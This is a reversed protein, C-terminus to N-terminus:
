EEADEQPARKKLSFPPLHTSIHGPKSFVWPLQQLHLEPYHAPFAPYLSKAGYGSRVSPLAPLLAAKFFELERKKARRPLWIKVQHIHIHGRGGSRRAWYLVAHGKHRYADKLQSRQRNEQPGTNTLGVAKQAKAEFIGSHLFYLRGEHLMVRERPFGKRKPHWLWTGEQEGCGQGQGMGWTEKRCHCRSDSAFIYIHWSLIRRKWFLSFAALSIWTSKVPFDRNSYDQQVSRGAMQIQKQSTPVSETLQDQSWHHSSQIAPPAQGCTEPWLLDCLFLM